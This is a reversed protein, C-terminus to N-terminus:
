SVDADPRAELVFIPIRRDVRSLRRGRRSRSPRRREVLDLGAAREVNGEVNAAMAASSSSSRM